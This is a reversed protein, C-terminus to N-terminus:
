SETGEDIFHAFKNLSSSVDRVSGVNIVLLTDVIIYIYVETNMTLLLLLLIGHMCAGSIINYMVKYLESSPLTNM